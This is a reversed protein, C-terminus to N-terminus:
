KLIFYSEYFTFCLLIIGFEIILINLIKEFLNLKFYKLTLVSPLIISTTNELFGGVVSM